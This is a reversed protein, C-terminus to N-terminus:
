NQSLIVAHLRSAFPDRSDSTAQLRTVFLDAIRSAPLTASTTPPVRPMPRPMTSLKARSAPPPLVPEDNAVRGVQHLEV